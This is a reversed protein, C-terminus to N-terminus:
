KDFKITKIVEQFDNKFSMSNTQLVITKDRLKLYLAMGNMKSYIEGELLSGTTDNVTYSAQKIKGSEISKILPKLTADYDKNVINVILAHRAAKDDIAPVPNPHFYATYPNNMKRVYMSWTKPYFFRLQGLDTPGVFERFPEKERQEFTKQMEDQIDKKYSLGQEELRTDFNKELDTYKTFFMISVAIMALSLVGFLIALVM